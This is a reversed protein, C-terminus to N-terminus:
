SIVTKLEYKVAATGNAPVTLPTELVTRDLMMATQYGLSNNYYSASVYQFYGIESVIKDTAGSNTLTFTFAIYPNGDGDAGRNVAPTSASLGGTIPTELAYDNETPPTNGSGIYIGQNFPSSIQVVTNVQAPFRNLTNCLYDTGGSTNTIPFYCRSNSNGSSGLITALLMKFNKTIM